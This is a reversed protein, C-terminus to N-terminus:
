RGIGQTLVQRKAYKEAFCPTCNNDTTASAPVSQNFNQSGYEGAGQNALRAAVINMVRDREMPDAVHQAVYVASGVPVRNEAVMTLSDDSLGVLAASIRLNGQDLPINPLLSAHVRGSLVEKFVRAGDVPDVNGRAMNKYAAIARVDDVTYGDAERLVQAAIKGPGHGAANSRKALDLRHHGDAVFKEGNLREHVLIPDGHLLPEWRDTNFRGSRTVGSKDGNSKFQYAQADVHVQEPDFMAVPVNAPAPKLEPTAIM